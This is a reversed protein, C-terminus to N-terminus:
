EKYRRRYCLLGVFCSIFLLMLTVTSVPGIKLAIWGVCVIPFLSIRVMAKLNNHKAIFDAMPPSYTNYLRVFGKGMSNHLLFRDRFDRLIKVHPEMSSGYASTAIFCGGGGDGASVSVGAGGVDIITGDASLDDDGREGDVFHLTIVNGNIESGTQEDNLFEYWHDINNSPTPGYKYYTDITSGSPFYLTVTTTDGNSIGKITFEFFGYPFDVSPPADAASPNKVAQCNIITTGDPGELTVYYQDDYTHFSTVNRQLYDAIGDGNGDYNADDSNPGQEEADTLGDNDDDSDDKDAVGDGDTDTDTAECDGTSSNCTQDSPCKPNFVCGTANSCSDVTCPDDDYCSADDPTNVCIDNVEDCTDVSCDVGDDCTEPPGKLCTGGDCIETGNCFLGDDCDADTLCCNPVLVFVCSASICSNTTCPDGDDCDADNLCLGPLCIEHYVCTNSVTNCEGITCPNEDYCYGDTLCCGPVPAYACSLSICSNTTCPNSDDCDVDNACPQHPVEKCLGTEPDCESGPCWRGYSVCTNNVINCMNILCPNSTVCDGDTLCCGPVPDSVCSESICSNKTCPNSDDCDADNACTAGYVILPFGILLFVVTYILNKKM